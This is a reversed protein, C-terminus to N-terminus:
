IAVPVRITNIKLTNATNNEISLALYMGTISVSTSIDIEDGVIGYRVHSASEVKFRDAMVEFTQKGTLWEVVVIWKVAAHGPITVDGDVVRTENAPITTSSPIWVDVESVRTRGTPLAPTVPIKVINMMVDTPLNNTLMLSVTNTDNVCEIITDDHSDGLMGYVSGIGDHSLSFIQASRRVSNADIFTVVWKVGLTHMKSITDLLGTTNAKVVATSHEININGNTEMQNTTPVYMRTAFVFLPEAENNTCQLAYEGAIFDVEITCQIADGIIGYENNTIIGSRELSMIEIARSKSGSRTSVVIYWKTCLSKSVSISDVTATDGSNIYKQSCMVPLHSTTLVVAGSTPTQAPAPRAILVSM